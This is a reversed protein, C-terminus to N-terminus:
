CREQIAITLKSCIECKTEITSKSFTFTLQTSLIFYIASINNNCYSSLDLDKQSYTRIIGGKLGKICLIGFHDSM